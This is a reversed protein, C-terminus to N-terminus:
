ALLARLRAVVVVGDYFVQDYTFRAVRWGAVVLQADREYGAERAPKPTHFRGGDVEVVLRRGPWV